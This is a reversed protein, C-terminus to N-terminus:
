VKLDQSVRFNYKLNVSDYALKGCERMLDYIITINQGAALKDPVEITYCTLM